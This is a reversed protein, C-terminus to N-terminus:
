YVANNAETIYFGGGGGHHNNTMNGNKEKGWHDRHPKVISQSEESLSHLWWQYSKVARDGLLSITAMKKEEEEQGAELFKM